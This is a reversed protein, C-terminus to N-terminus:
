SILNGRQEKESSVLTKKTLEGLFRVNSFTGTGFSGMTMAKNWFDLSTIIARFCQSSSPMTELGKIRDSPPLPLKIVTLKLSM